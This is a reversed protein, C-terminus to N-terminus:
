EKKGSLEKALKAKRAVLYNLSLGVITLGALAWGAPQIVSKWAITEAPISPRLPLGYFEPSDDLVYLVHLGDLEKDGYLYANTFGKDKLVQTRERGKTVLENRDGFYLAGSPCAKTCAPEWGEAIRNLNATTCLTCKDMKAAGTLLNRTYMPVDFPCSESCYGCGICADKNFTVFGSEHRHVADVPCATICGADSCHMCARRTFLRRLKNNEEVERSEIKIWTSPSLNNPNSYSGVNVAKTKGTEPIAEDNENWQKCAAQCSRCATCKTADFLIAKDAV